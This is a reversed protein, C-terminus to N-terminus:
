TRTRRYRHQDFPSQYTSDAAARAHNRQAAALMYARLDGGKAICERSSAYAPVDGCEVRDLAGLASQCAVVTNYLKVFSAPQGLREIMTRCETAVQYKDRSSRGSNLLEDICHQYIEREM